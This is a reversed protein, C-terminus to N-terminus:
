WRTTAFDAFLAQAQPAVALNTGSGGGTPITINKIAAPDLGMSLRGLRFLETIGVNEM